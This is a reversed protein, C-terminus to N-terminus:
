GAFTPSFPNATQATSAAYHSQQSQQGQWPGSTQQPPHPINYSGFQAAVDDWTPAPAFAFSAGSGPVNPQARAAFSADTPAYTSPPAVSPVPPVVFSPPPPAQQQSMGSPAVSAQGYNSGAGFAGVADEWTPPPAYQFSRTSEGRMMNAPITPGRGYGGVVSADDGMASVDDSLPTDPLDITIDSPTRQVAPPLQGSAAHQSSSPHNSSLDILDESEEITRMTRQPPASRFAGHVAGFSPIQERASPQPPASPLPRSYQYRQRQAGASDNRISKQRAFEYMFQEEARDKPTITDFDPVGSSEIEGASAYTADEYHEVIRGPVARRIAGDEGRATGIDRATQELQDRPLSEAYAVAQGYMDRCKPGGLEYIHLMNHFSQGDLRLDFHKYNGYISPNHARAQSGGTSLDAVLQMMHNGTGPLPFNASFSNEGIPGCSFHVELGDLLIRRKGSALSWFLIM